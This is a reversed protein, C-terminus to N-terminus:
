EARVQWSRSRTPLPRHPVTGEYLLRGEPKLAARAIELLDLAAPFDLHHLIGQATAIDFGSFYGVLERTILACQFTGRSGFRRRASNIYEPSADFGVYEIDEPLFNLINAPGCGIDLIRDGPRPRLYHSVYSKGSRGCVIKSFATYLLPISLIDRLQM